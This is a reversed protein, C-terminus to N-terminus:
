TFDTPRISDTNQRSKPRLGAELDAGTPLWPQEPVRTSSAQELGPGKWFCLTRCGASGRKASYGELLQIAGFGTESGSLHGSVALFLVLTVFLNRM